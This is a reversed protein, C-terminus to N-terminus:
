ISTRKLRLANGIVSVSSLAMAASAFMPSLLIGLSPYLVGAAIPVGAFNYIFAFFLNERINKMTASSLNRAKVIGMLDGKILTVGASEIAVDTGHGMAIGVHAQALGPADNVGDGAMGVIRGQKQLDQVISRKQDPLVDSIVNKIGVKEAVAMATVKNDGTLMIVEIGNDQLTRVAESTTVKIQDVVAIFGLVETASMLVMVTHGDKRLKEVDDNYKSLDFGLESAWKINGVSYKKGELNGSIGKGTTSIFEKVEINLNIQREQAGKTIAQALPHESSRELAAAIKLVENESLNATSIVKSLTPKGETLTGTKDVVLTNIKSFIELAEADKILIGNQAGRGVGVMISMPTALGLACPCAIILVAIANVLAYTMRPEPGVFYWVLYAIIAIVVVAPVFYSSAIDAVKQIPARSRQAESVMKVIQSLLTESGVKEAKMVFTGTGNLTGGTVKSGMEKEVPIPEGTIMSEDISSQGQVVVGDVPVKEGPKVKLLDEIVIRSLEVFEEKDDRIRLAMKPALGLLAKIAGSTQKRARLELVQGLLVLTIIAAAAEFYVGVEGTHQNKMVEPFLAPLLTAVLSYVYAVATGLAILTFMNLQLTKLSIWGRQFLPYGSWLVVPTALILQFYNLSIAGSLDHIKFPLIMEAMALLVLPITFILSVKFRRNMDSLEHDEGEELAPELPELSMGCIPCNGPKNQRIQPHMPCTYTINAKSSTVDAISPMDNLIPGQHHHHQHHNHSDGNKM